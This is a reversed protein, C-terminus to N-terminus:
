HFHNKLHDQITKNHTQHPNLTKTSTPKTKTKHKEQYHKQFLKIIENKNMLLINTRKLIKELEKVGKKVYLM